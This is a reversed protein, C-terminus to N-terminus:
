PMSLENSFMVGDVGGAQLALLDERTARVVDYMGKDSDYGPDGPLAQLHVMGIIPKITKFSM